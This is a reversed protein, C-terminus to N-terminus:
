GPTPNSTVQHLALQWAGDPSRRYVSSRWDTEAAADARQARGRYALAIADDGLALARLEEIEWRVEAAPSSGIIEVCRTKDLAGIPDAFLLLADDALHKAYYDGDGAFSARWFGRELESCEHEADM